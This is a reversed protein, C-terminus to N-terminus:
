DRRGHKYNDVDEEVAEKVGEILESHDIERRRFMNFLNRVKKGNETDLDERDDLGSNDETM